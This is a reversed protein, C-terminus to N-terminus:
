PKIEALLVAAFRLDNPTTIKINEPNGEVLTIEHGAHEVVSADDTFLHNFDVAYAKKLLKSAFVQPTQVLRFNSRSVAVSSGDAKVQRLSETATLVPIAAQYMAAAEFARAITQNTVCPRVADHVAVLADDPLNALAGKVSYFREEGGVVLTDGTDLHYRACEDNWFDMWALPLVVIVKIDPLASRFRAITHSLIPKGAVHIFQKPIDAGMRKGSGGAVIIVVKNM